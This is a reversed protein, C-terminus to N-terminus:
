KFNISDIRLMAAVENYPIIVNYQGSTGVSLNYPYFYVVMGERILGCGDIKPLVDSGDSAYHTIEYADNGEQSLLNRMMIQAFADRQNEDIFDDLGLERGTKADITRYSERTNDGGSMWDYWTAEYFTYLDGTRWCDFLMLGGQETPVPYDSRDKPCQWDKYIEELYNLYYEEIEEVSNPRRLCTPAELTDYKQYHDGVACEEIYEKCRQSVWEKLTKKAPSRLALVVRESFCTDTPCHIAYAKHVLGPVAPFVSSDITGDLVRSDIKGFFAYKYATAKHSFTPNNWTQDYDNETHSCAVFFLVLIGLSFLRM